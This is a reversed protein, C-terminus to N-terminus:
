ITILIVKRGYIYKHFKKVAFILGLTEQDLQSYNQEAQSLTAQRLAFRGRNEGIVHTRYLVADVDYQSIDSEIYIQSNIDYHTLLKNQKLAKKSAVFAKECDDTWFYRVKAKLAYLPSLLISLNPLFKGYFSLMGLYSKLQTVDCPRRM